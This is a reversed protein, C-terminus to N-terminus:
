KVRHVSLIFQSGTGIYDDLILLTGVNHCSITVEFVGPSGCGARLINVHPHHRKSSKPSSRSTSSRGSTGKCFLALSVSMRSYMVFRL